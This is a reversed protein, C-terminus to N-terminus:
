LLKVYNQIEKIIKHLVELKKKINKMNNENPNFDNLNYEKSLSDYKNSLSVSEKILTELMIDCDKKELYM